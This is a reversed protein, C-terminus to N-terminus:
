LGLENSKTFQCTITASVLSNDGFLNAYSIDISDCVAEYEMNSFKIRVWPSIVTDGKYIPQVMKKIASIYQKFSTFGTPLYDALATFSIPVQQPNTNSFAIIPKDSGIPSEKVFSASLSEAFTNPFLIYIDRDKEDGYYLEILCSLYNPPVNELFVEDKKYVKIKKIPPYTDDVNLKYDKTIFPDIVTQNTNM